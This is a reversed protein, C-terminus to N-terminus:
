ALRNPKGQVYRSIARKFSLAALGGQLLMLCFLLLQSSGVALQRRAGVDIGIIFALSIAQIVVSATLVAGLVLLTKLSTADVQAPQIDRLRLRQDSRPLRMLIPHLRSFRVRTVILLRAVISVFTLIAIVVIDGGDPEAHGSLLYVLLTSGGPCAVITLAFVLARVVPRRVRGLELIETRQAQDTLYHKGAGFLWPNPARFLYGGSTKKFFADYTSVSMVM